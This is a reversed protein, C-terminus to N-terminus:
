PMEFKLVADIGEGRMTITLMEGWIPPVTDDRFSITINLMQCGWFNKMYTHVADVRQNGQRVDFNVNYLDGSFFPNPVLLHFRVQGGEHGSGVGYVYHIQSVVVRRGENVFTRDNIQISGRRATIMGEVGGIHIDTLHRQHLNYNQRISFTILFLVAFVVLMARNIIKRAKRRNFTVENGDLRLGSKEADDDFKDYM